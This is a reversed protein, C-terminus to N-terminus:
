IHFIWKLGYYLIAAICFYVIAYIIMNTIFDKFIQKREEDTPNEIQKIDNSINDKVRQWSWKKKSDTKDEEM